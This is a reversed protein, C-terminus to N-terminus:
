SLPSALTTCMNGHKFFPKQATIIRSSKEISRWILFEFLQRYRLQSLAHMWQNLARKLEISTPILMTSINNENILACTSQILTRILQNLTSM